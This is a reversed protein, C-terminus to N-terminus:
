GVLIAMRGVDSNGNIRSQLSPVNDKEIRKSGGVQQLLPTCCGRITTKQESAVPRAETEM